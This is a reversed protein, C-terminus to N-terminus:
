FTKQTTLLVIFNMPVARFIDDEVTVYHFLFSHLFAFLLFFRVYCSAKTIGNLCIMIGLVRVCVCLNEPV